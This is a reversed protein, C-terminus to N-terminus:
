KRKRNKPPDIADLMARQKTKLYAAVSFTLATMNHLLGGQARYALLLDTFASDLRKAATKNQTKVGQTKRLLEKLLEDLTEDFYAASRKVRQLFEAQHLEQPPLNRIFRQWKDAVGTLKVKM